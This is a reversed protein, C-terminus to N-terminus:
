DCYFFYLRLSTFAGSHLYGLYWPRFLVFVVHASVNLPQKVLILLSIPWCDCFHWYNPHNIDSQHYSKDFHCFSLFMQFIYKITKKSIWVDTSLELATIHLIVFAKFNGKTTRNIIRQMYYCLSWKLHVVEVVILCWAVWITIAKFM